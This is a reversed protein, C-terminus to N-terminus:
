MKLAARAHRADLCVVHLGRALDDHGPRSALGAMKTLCTPPRGEIREPTSLDQGRWMRAGNRDVVCVATTKQSVDLGVFRMM